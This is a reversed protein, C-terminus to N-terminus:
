RSCHRSMSRDSISWCRLWGATIAAQHGFNRSLSLVQFRDDGGRNAHLLAVTRDSSGDDVYTVRWSRGLRECASRLRAHLEPVNEEENFLPVVVEVM